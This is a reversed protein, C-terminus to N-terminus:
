LFSFGEMLPDVPDFAGFEPDVIEGREPTGRGQKLEAGGQAYPFFGDDNM